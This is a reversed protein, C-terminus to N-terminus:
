VGCVAASEAIVSQAKKQSMGLAELVHPKEAVQRCLPTGSAILRMKDAKSLTTLVTVPYVGTKQIMEALGAGHPYNWGLLRIGSCQGYQIAHSTFKTNTVLWAEDIGSKEHRDEAGWEIDWYRARVYLAIKVDTKFGPTNHFKLEAGITHKENKMIVDVEHEVCRGRVMVDHTTEYGQAHMLAAFFQEFPFGTPGLELIARRMSYRAAVVHERKHLLDFAMRYIETTTMGDKVAKAVETAVEDALGKEAGSHELSRMLKAIDFEEREGDGKLIFPM